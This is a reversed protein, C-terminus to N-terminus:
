DITLFENLKDLLPKLEKPPNGHDFQSSTFNNESTTIKLEAALAMDRYRDESPAKLNNLNGLNIEQILTTLVNWKDSTIKLVTDNYVIQNPNAIIKLSSGRTSAM